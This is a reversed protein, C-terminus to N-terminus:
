KELSNECMSQLGSLKGSISHHPLMYFCIGVVDVGSKIYVKELM